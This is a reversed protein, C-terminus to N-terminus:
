PRAPDAPPQQPVTVDQVPVKRVQLTSRGAEYIAFALVAGVVLIVLMVTGWPIPHRQTLQRPNLPVHGTM